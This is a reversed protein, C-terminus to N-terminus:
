YTIDNATSQTINLVRWGAADAFLTLAMKRVDNSTTSTVNSMQIQTSVAGPAFNTNSIYFYGSALAAGAAGDIIVHLIQGPTAGSGVPPLVIAECDNPAVGTYTSLNIRLVSYGIVSSINRVAGAGPLAQLNIAPASVTGQYLQQNIIENTFNSRINSTFVWPGGIASGNFTVNRGVIADLTISASQSVGLDLLVNLNGQILATAECDFIQATTPNTYRRILANGVNLSGGPTFSTNLRTEIANVATSIRKFNDNITTRSGSINDGGLIETLTLVAM